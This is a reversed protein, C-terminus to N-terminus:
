PRATDDCVCVCVCSWDGKLVVISFCSVELDKQLDTICSAAPVGEALRVHSM